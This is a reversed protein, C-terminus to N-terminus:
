PDLSEMIDATGLDRRQESRALGQTAGVRDSNSRNQSLKRKAEVATINLQVGVIANLQADIFDTPADSVQWPDAGDQDSVDAENHDTLDTVLQRKWDVEDHIEITGHLHVVEYNWTPVVKGHETKSPYWRPSIYADVSPVIFLASTGGIERWVPNARAFHARATLLSDDVLFPLPTATLGSGAVGDVSQTVLHGFSVSRLLALIETPSDVVFAPPTYM